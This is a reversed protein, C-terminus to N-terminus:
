RKGMAGLSELKSRLALAPISLGIMTVKGKRGDYSIQRSVLGLDALERLYKWLQSASM